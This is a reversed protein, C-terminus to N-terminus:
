FNPPAYHINDRKVSKKKIADFLNENLHTIDAVPIYNVYVKFTGSHLGSKAEVEIFGNEYYIDALEKAHVLPTPSFFDYDPFESKNYFKDEDPLINNIATGGYCVLKNKKIFKEVIKIIKNIEPNSILEEGKKKDIKDITSRLVAMECEEFTTNKECKIM